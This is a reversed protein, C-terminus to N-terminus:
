LLGLDAFVGELETKLNKLEATPDQTPAAFVKNLSEAVVQKIASADAVAPFTQSSNNLAEQVPAWREDGYITAADLDSRVPLRVVPQVSNTMCATQGAASIFWSIVKNVSATKATGASVYINEGEALVTGGDPGVPAPFASYVDKGPAEDLANFQYPGILLHGSKGEAFFPTSTSTDATLAGPQILGETAFLGQLWTVAEVTKDGTTEVTFTGDGNDTWFSGGGQWIYGMAWRALYGNKTSGAVATGYTDIAGNGDPDGTAVAELFSKYEEWTTPAKLGLNELWDTRFLDVMTQRSYPVAYTVGETDKVEDWRAADIDGSEPYDDQAIEHLLGQRHYTGLLVDDNIWMDPLDKSQARSQLEQDFNQVIKFTVTVGTDQQLRPLIEVYADGTGSGGRAWLEIAGDDQGGGTDSGSSGCAALVAALTLATGGALASRRTLLTPNSM